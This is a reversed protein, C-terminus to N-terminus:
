RCGYIAALHHSIPTLDDNSHECDLIGLEHSSTSACPVAKSKAPPHALTTGVKAAICTSVGNGRGRVWTVRPM